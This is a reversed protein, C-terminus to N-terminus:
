KMGYYSGLVDILQAKFQPLLKAIADTKLEVEESKVSVLSENDGDESQLDVIDHENLGFDSTQFVEVNNIADWNDEVLGLSKQKQQELRKHYKDHRKKARNIIADLEEMIKGSDVDNNNKLMEAFDIRLLGANGINKANRLFALIDAIWKILKDFLGQKDNIYTDHVFQYFEDEHAELVKMISDVIKSTDTTYMEHSLRDLLTVLDDMFGEFNRFAVDIHANSFLTVLPQYFMTFLERLISTLEPESWVKQMIEKDRNRVYLKYLAKLDSYLELKEHNVFQLAEHDGRHLKLKKYENYSEFVTGILDDDIESLEYLKPTIMVTLVTDVNLDKAEQKVSEILDYDTCDYVFFKLRDVIGKYGIKEELETIVKTQSKIDDSLIGYFLTQLLSKGGFPSAMLLDVMTKIISMPNTFRLINIMISYPMLKHLRRVQSYLEYSNDNALFLQYITAAIEVKCWEMFNRLMPSLEGIHSKTKFEDFIEVIGDNSELLKARLPLSDEKLKTIKAYAERQFKVQNLLLLLDLNERIQIDIKDEPSLQRLKDKFLFEKLLESHAIEVDNILDRLYARLGVRTKERPLKNENISKKTTTTTGWKKPSLMLKARKTPSMPSEFKDSQQLPPTKPDTTTELKLDKFLNSLNKRIEEDHRKALEEEQLEQEKEDDDMDDIEDDEDPEDSGGGLNIISKVKSPLKPLHKGPFKKKLRHHLDKFDSYRRAVHVHESNALDLRTTILFEYHTEHPKTLNLGTLFRNNAKKVKRVGSVNISIGNTFTGKVIHAKLTERSPFLLKHMRKSEVSGRTIDLKDRLYYDLENQTGVGSNYMMLLLRQLRAAMKKRKTAEERDLTDSMSMGMFHEYFVQVKRVWFETYDQHQPALFPVTVVFHAFFFRHLPFLPSVAHDVTHQSAEKGRSLKSPDSSVFPGGFSRLALPDNFLTLEAESQLRLLERKLYHEHTPTLSGM